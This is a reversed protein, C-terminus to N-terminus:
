TRGERWRGTVTEAFLSGPVGAVFSAAMPQLLGLRETAPAMVAAFGACTVGTLGATTLITRTM